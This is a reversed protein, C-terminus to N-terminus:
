VCNTDDLVCDSDTECDEASHAECAHAEPTGDVCSSLVNNEEDAATFICEGAFLCACEDAQDAAECATPPTLHCDGEDARWSCGEIADCTEETM